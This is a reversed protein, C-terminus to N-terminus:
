EGCIYVIPTGDTSSSASDGVEAVTKMLSGEKAKQLLENGAERDNLIELLFSAYIKLAKPSNPYIAQMRIWNKSIVENYM